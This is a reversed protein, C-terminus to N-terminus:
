QTQEQGAFAEDIAQVIAKAQESSLDDPRAAFVLWSIDRGYRAIFCCRNLMGAEHYTRSFVLEYEEASVDPEWGVMEPWPKKYGYNCDGQLQLYNKHAREVTRYAAVNHSLWSEEGPVSSAGKHYSVLVAGCQGRFLEGALKGTDYTGLKWSRPLIHSSLLLTEAQVCPPEKATFGLGKCSALSVGMVLVLLLACRNWRLRTKATERILM